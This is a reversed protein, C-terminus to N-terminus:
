RAWNPSSGEVVKRREPLMKRVEDSAAEVLVPQGRPRSALLVALAALTQDNIQEALHHWAAASNLPDTNEM